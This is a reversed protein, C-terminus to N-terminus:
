SSRKWAMIMGPFETDTAKCPNSPVNERSQIRVEFFIFITLDAGDATWRSKNGQSIQDFNTCEPQASNEQDSRINIQIPMQEM